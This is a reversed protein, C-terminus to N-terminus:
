GAGGELKVVRQRLSLADREDVAGDANVDWDGRAAGLRARTDADNAAYKSLVLADVIDVRGDADVDGPLSITTGGPGQAINSPAPGRSFQPTVVAVLLIAAAAATMAVLRM